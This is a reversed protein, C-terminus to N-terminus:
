RFEAADAAIVSLVSDTNRSLTVSEGALNAAPVPKGWEKEFGALSEAYANSGSSLVAMVEQAWGTGGALLCFIPILAFIARKKM